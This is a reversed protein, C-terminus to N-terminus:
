SARAVIWSRSILNARSRIAFYSGSLCTQILPLGDLQLLLTGGPLHSLLLLIFGKGGGTPVGLLPYRCVNAM